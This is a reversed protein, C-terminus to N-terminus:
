GVWWYAPCMDHNCNRQIKEPRKNEANNWCQEDEVIGVWRKYCVPFRQQIGIGCTKSCTTFDSLKWYFIQEDTLNSPLTYEYKIGLNKHKGKFVIQFYTKILIM